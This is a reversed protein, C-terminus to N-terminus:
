NLNGEFGRCVGFSLIRIGDTINYSFIFHFPLIRYLVIFFTWHLLPINCYISLFMSNKFIIYFVVLFHILKRLDSISFM